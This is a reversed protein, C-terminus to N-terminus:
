FKDIQVNMERYISQGSWGRDGAAFCIRRTVVSFNISESFKWRPLDRKILWCFERFLDIMRNNMINHSFRNENWRFYSSNGGNKQVNHEFPIRVVELIAAGM